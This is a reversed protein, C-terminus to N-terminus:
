FAWLALLALAHTALMAAPVRPFLIFVKPISIFLKIISFQLISQALIILPTPDGPRQVRVKTAAGRRETTRGDDM